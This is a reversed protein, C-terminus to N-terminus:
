TLSPSRAWARIREREPELLDGLSSSEYIGAGARRGGSGDLTPNWEPAYNEDVHEQMARMNRLISEIEEISYSRASFDRSVEEGDTYYRADPSEGFVAGIVEPQIERKM